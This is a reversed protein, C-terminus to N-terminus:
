ANRYIIVPQILTKISAQPGISPNFSPVEIGQQRLADMINLEDQTPGKLSERRRRRLDELSKLLDEPSSSRFSGSYTKKRNRNNNGKTESAGLMSEATIARQSAADSSFRKVPRELLPATPEPQPTPQPTPEPTPPPPSTNKRNRFIKIDNLARTIRAKSVKTFPTAGPRPTRGTRTKLGFVAQVLDQVANFTQFAQAVKAEDSSRLAAVDEPRLVTVVPTLVKVKGTRNFPTQSAQRPNPSVLIFYGDAREYIKSQPQFLINGFLGGAFAPQQEYLYKLAEIERSIEAPDQKPKAPVIPNPVFAPTAPEVLPKEKEPQAEKEREPPKQEPKAPVNAPVGRRIREQEAKRKAEEQKRRNYEPSYIDEGETVVKPEELEEKIIQTQGTPQGTPQGSPSGKPGKPGPGKLIPPLGGFPPLPPFSLGGSKAVANVGFIVGATGLQGPIIPIVRALRYNLEKIQQFDRKRSLADRKMVRSLRETTVRVSRLARIADIKFINQM